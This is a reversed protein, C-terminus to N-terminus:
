DSWNFLRDNTNILATLYFYVQSNREVNLDDQNQSRSCMVQPKAKETVDRACSACAPRGDNGQFNLIDISNNM